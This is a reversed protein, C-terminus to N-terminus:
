VFAEHARPAYVQSLQQNMLHLRCMVRCDSLDTRQGPHRAWIDAFSETRLDGLLSDPIGRRQPCLWVRGDPTITANFRVGYCTSYTRGNWDLYEMFREVDCEVDPEKAIAVLTEFAEAIWSRDGTCTAPADPSTEITPRLTTYTAGLQRALYVMTEAKRWNGAHLLFSVGVTTLKPEALWRIGDVARWFRDTPVGKEHHYTVPDACDLSVVVWTAAEALTRASEPRLLGGLTYMGQELGLSAAHQVIEPWQSHTTPEGGGTWVVGRVGAAAMQELARRVLTTDAYDGVDEFAMPLRRDRMVWPGRTHTHAFHCSQCGLVCRNSLDWEVTVPAAKQGHQWAAMRDLHSFVKSPTIFRV